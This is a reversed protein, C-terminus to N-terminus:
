TVALKRSKRRGDESPSCHHGRAGDVCIDPQQRVLRVINPAIETLPLVYDVCGAEIAARPMGFIKCSAWNQAIVTGGVKHLAEAGRRGNEGAGSLIVVMARQKVTKALSKFLVDASPRVFHVRGEKSLSLTGDPTLFVHHDPPAIFVAGPRLVDGEKAWHVPLHTWRGLVQPLYSKAKSPLHQVLLIAAPFREPLHPLIWSLAEIGGSSAGFAVIDFATDPFPLRPPILDSTAM